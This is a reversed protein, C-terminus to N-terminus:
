NEERIEIGTERRQTQVVPLTRDTVIRGGMRAVAIQHAPDPTLGGINHVVIHAPYECVKQNVLSVQFAALPHSLRRPVGDLDLTRKVSALRREVHALAM